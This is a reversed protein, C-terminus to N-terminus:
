RWERTTYPLGSRRFHTLGRDFKRTNSVIRAASNLVRQLKDTTKRPAGILLSGCITHKMCAVVTADGIRYHTNLTCYFASPYCLYFTFSFFLTILTIPRDLGVRMIMLCDLLYFFDLTPLNQAQLSLTFFLHNILAPIILSIPQCTSWSTFRSLFPLASPIFRCPLQNNVVLFDANGPLAPM